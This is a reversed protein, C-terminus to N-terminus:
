AAAGLPVAAPLARAMRRFADGRVEYNPWQDYSACAPSLLVVAGHRAERQALAHAHDLAGALDGCRSYPLRGELQAAFQETAQGLLFAHRVHGFLEALSAVGGEKPTGGLIWYIEDYSALAKATADANTAKSDNVYVIGAIEAVREQRHPLGPYSPLAAAIAEDPVGLARTAAFACAANQWNHAGPLTKIGRLDISAAGAARLLGDRVSVGGPAEHGVAIPVTHVGDAAVQALTERSAEDDIGIVATDGARMTRFLRRKAAIYGQLDGHRDIHDPTINLWVAVDFHAQDLLDLQFSSLELVYVGGDPVPDFDLVPRGINGGVESPVRAQKLIHGILATTTSKGNTGTIGVFRAQSQVRALLEIDCVVPKRSARAAAAVPHPVPHTLPIGPSMVLLDITRWDWGAPDSLAFGAAEAERRRAASDDWAVTPLKAQQLARLTSLGSRALGLVAFRSGAFAALDIM